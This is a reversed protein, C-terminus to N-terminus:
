WENRLNDTEKLVEDYNVISRQVKENRQKRTRPLFERAPVNLFDQVRKMTIAFNNCLDAEYELNLVHHRRFRNSAYGEKRRIDSCFHVCDSIDVRFPRIEPTDIPEDDLITWVNTRKALERSFYAGVIDRRKLHIIRIDTDSELHNWLRNKLEEDLLHDYFLKFGVAHPKPWCRDYFVAEQLFTVPDEAQGYARGGQQKIWKGTSVDFKRFDAPFYESRDSSDNHFIELYMRIYPNQALSICLMNSGSRAHAIVVFHVASFESM